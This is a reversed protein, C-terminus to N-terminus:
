FRPRARPSRAFRRANPATWCLRALPVPRNGTAVAPAVETELRSDCILVVATEADFGDFVTLWCDIRDALKVLWSACSLVNMALATNLPRLRSDAPGALTVM